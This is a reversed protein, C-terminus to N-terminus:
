KTCLSKTIFLKGNVANGSDNGLFQNLTMAKNKKKKGTPNDKKTDKELQQYM